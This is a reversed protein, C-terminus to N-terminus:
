FVQAKTRTLDLFNGLFRVSKHSPSLFVFIAPFIGPRGRIKRGGMVACLCTCTHVCLLTHILRTVNGTRSTTLQVPFRLIKREENRRLIQDPSVPPLRHLTHTHLSCGDCANNRCCYRVHCVAVCLNYLISTDHTSHRPGRIELRGRAQNKGFNLM